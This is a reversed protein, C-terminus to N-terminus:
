YAFTEAHFNVTPGGRLVDGTVKIVNSVEARADAILTHPGSVEVALPGEGHLIEEHIITRVDPRGHIPVVDLEPLALGAQKEPRGAETAAEADKESTAPMFPLGPIVDSDKDSSEDDTGTVYLSIRIDLSSPRAAFAQRLIPTISSIYARSRAVWVFHVRATRAAGTSAQKVIDLLLPLTYSVGTGGAVLVCTRYPKLDTPHGYPGDINVPVRAGPKRGALEIMRRTVGNRARVYFVLEDADGEGREPISTISFPHSEFYFKSVSPFQLFAHQGPAWGLPMRRALRVRATDPTVLVLEATSSVSSRPLCFVNLVLYRLGRVIREFGWIVWIPWVYYNLGPTTTHICSAVILVIILVFHTYYFIEYSWRRIPRFSLIIALTYAAGAVGGWQQWGYAPIYDPGPNFTNTRWRGFVHVWVLVYICRGFARHLINLDALSRLFLLDFRMCGIINNKASLAPLFCLQAAAIHAAKNSWFTPTLNDTHVFQWILLAAMYICISFIEFVSADTTGGLPIRWRFAIVRWASLLAAPVRHLSAPGRVTRADGFEGRHKIAQLAPPLSAM